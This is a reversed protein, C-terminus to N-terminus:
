FQLLKPCYVLKVFDQSVLKGEVTFFCKFKKWPSLKLKAQELLQDLDEGRVFVGKDITEGNPFVLVRKQPFM